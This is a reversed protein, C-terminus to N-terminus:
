DSDASGVFRGVHGTRAAAVCLHLRLKQGPRAVARWCGSWFFLRDDGPTLAGGIDPGARGAREGGDRPKREERAGTTLGCWDGAAGTADRVARSQRRRM